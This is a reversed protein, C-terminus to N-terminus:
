LAWYVRYELKTAYSKCCGTSHANGSLRRQVRAYVNSYKPRNYFTAKEVNRKKNEGENYWIKQNAVPLSSKLAFTKNKRQFKLIPLQQPKLAGLDFRDATCSAAGGPATQRHTTRRPNFRVTIGSSLIDTNWFRANSPSPELWETHLQLACDKQM